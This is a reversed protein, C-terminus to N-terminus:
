RGGAATPPDHHRSSSDPTSPGPPSRLTSKLLVLARRINTLSSIGFNLPGERGAEPMLRQLYEELRDVLAWAESWSIEPRGAYRGTQKIDSPEKDLSQRNM